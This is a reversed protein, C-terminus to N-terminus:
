IFKFAYRIVFYHLYDLRLEKRDIWRDMWGGMWGDSDRTGMCIFAHIYIAYISKHMHAFTHMAYM